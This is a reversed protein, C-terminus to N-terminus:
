NEISIAGSEPLKDGIKDIDLVDGTKVFCRWLYLKNNEFSLIGQDIISPDRLPTTPRIHVIIDPEKQKNIEFWDKM